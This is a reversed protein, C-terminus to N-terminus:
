PGAIERYLWARALTWDRKVTAPSVGTAEATEEITMGGFFRLEVIRAQQPDLGALRTLAEDLHVLDVAQEEAYVVADDLSLGRRDGGRKEAGRRRAHDVLIRRMVMAAVSLFHARNRWHAQRQDILRLYAEHVLATAQLTHGRPERSLARDALRRLEDYLLPLLKDVAATDGGSLDALWRTIDSTPPASM